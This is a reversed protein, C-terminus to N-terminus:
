DFALRKAAPGPDTPRVEREAMAHAARKRRMEVSRRIGGANENLREIEKPSQGSLLIPASVLAPDWLGVERHFDPRAHDANQMSDILYGHYGRSEGYQRICALMARDKEGVSDRRRPATPDAGPEPYGYHRYLLPLDAPRESELWHRFGEVNASLHLLRVDQNLSFGLKIAGYASTVKEDLLFFQAQYAGRAGPRFNDDGRFLRTGAPLGIVDNPGRDNAMGALSSAPATASPATARMLRPLPGSTTAPLTGAAPSDKLEHTLPRPHPRGLQEHDVSALGRLTPPQIKPGEHRSAPTRASAAAPAVGVTKEPETRGAHTAADASARNVSGVM